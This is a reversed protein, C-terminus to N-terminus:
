QLMYKIVINTALSSLIALILTSYYGIARIYFGYSKHKEAIKRVYIFIKLKEGIKLFLAGYVPILIIPLYFLLLDKYAYIFSGIVSWMFLQFM